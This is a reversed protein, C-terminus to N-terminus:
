KISVVLPVLVIDFYYKFKISYAYVDRRSIFINPLFLSVCFNGYSEIKQATTWTSHLLNVM